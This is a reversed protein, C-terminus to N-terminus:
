LTVKRNVFRNLDNQYRPSLQLLLAQDVSEHDNQIWAPAVAESILSYPGEILEFAKWVEGPVVLQSVQDASFDTGLIIRVPLGDAAVTLVAMPYGLHFFHVTDARSRHLYGIPNESTLLYYICNAAARGEPLKVPCTYTHRYFGGEPNASLQLKEILESAEPNM